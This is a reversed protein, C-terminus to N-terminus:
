SFEKCGSVFRSLIGSLKVLDSKEWAWSNKNVRLWCHFELCCKRIHGVWAYALRLGFSLCKRSLEIVTGGEERM